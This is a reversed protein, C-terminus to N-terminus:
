REVFSIDSIELDAKCQFNQPAAFGWQMGVLASLDIPDSYGNKLESFSLETTGLTLTPSGFFYGECREGTCIGPGTAGKMDHSQFLHFSVDCRGLDGRMTFRIGKFRSADLCPVKAFMFGFVSWNRNGEAVGTRVVVHLPRPRPSGGPRDLLEVTPARFGTATATFPQQGPSSPLGVVFPTEPAIGSCATGADPRGVDTAAGADVSDNRLGFDLSEPPEPAPSFEPASRLENTVPVEPGVGELRVGDMWVHGTGALLLGFAVDAADPAVELVVSYRTWDSTGEIPRDQMNDFASVGNSGDVRMWLGSWDRVDEAKVVASLRVRKDRFSKASVTRMMTGFGKPKPVLSRLSGSAHGGQKVVPDTSFEFEERDDGALFWGGALGDRQARPATSSDGRQGSASAVAASCAPLSGCLLFGLLSARSFRLKEGAGVM